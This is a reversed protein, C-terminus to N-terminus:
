AKIAKVIQEKVVELNFSAPTQMPPFEIFSRGFEAVVQQVFV